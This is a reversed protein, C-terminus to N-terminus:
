YHMHFEFSNPKKNRVKIPAHQRLGQTNFDGLVTSYISLKSNTNDMGMNVRVDSTIVEITQSIMSQVYSETEDTPINYRTQIDGTPPRYSAFISDMVSCINRDPVIIKRNEPDVGELLESVKHSIIKVTDASFYKKICPNNQSYGVHKLFNDDCEFCDEEFQKGYEM